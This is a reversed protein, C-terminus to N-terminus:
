SPFCSDTPTSHSSRTGQVMEDAHYMNIMIHGTFICKRKGGEFHNIKCSHHVRQGVWRWVMFLPYLPQYSESVNSICFTMFSRSVCLSSIHIPAMWKKTTNPPGSRDLIQGPRWISISRMWNKGNLCSSSSHYSLGLCFLHWICQCLRNFRM